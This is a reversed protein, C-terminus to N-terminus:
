QLVKSIPDILTTPASYAHHVNTGTGRCARGKINRQVPPADMIVPVGRDPRMNLFDPIVKGPRPDGEWVSLDYEKCLHSSRTSNPSV